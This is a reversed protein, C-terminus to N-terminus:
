EEHIAMQRANCGSFGGFTAGTSSNAVFADAVNWLSAQTSDM